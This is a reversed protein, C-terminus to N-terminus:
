CGLVCPNVYFGPPTLYNVVLPDAGMQGQMILFDTLSSPTVFACCHTSQSSQARGLSLTQGEFPNELHVRVTEGNDQKMLIWSGFSTRARSSIKARPNLMHTDPSRM